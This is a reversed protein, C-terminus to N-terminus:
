PLTVLNMWFQEIVAMADRFHDFDAPKVIYCNAGEDYASGVDAPASSTSLVAVPIRRLEVDAKMECLVQHGSKRPLNIDLLVLDPRGAEAYCGERRLYALAAEGDGVAHVAAVGKAERLAERALRVDAPNDEM